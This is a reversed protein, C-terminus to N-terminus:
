RHFSLPDIRYRRLWRQVQSRAKGMARAVATINGAHERLLAVLEERRKVEPGGDLRAAAPVAAPAARVAEPLHELEVREGRSLVAAAALTKELERVNLPWSHRLLARAADPSFTPAATGIKSLLAAVLLSFDERRERLPPLTCAYGSLRALLDARFLGQSVLAELDRNTAAVVRLDVKLPRAAGVPLVEEEQLVRLLAAQAPLPLDGIEDLLLTGRDAGRVLGPQDDVAGSFAGRRHGFLESEVLNPAIAGCNVAQFIGPRGSLRHIAAALVEKGTGSEGRLLVPMRSRAVLQLRDLEAGLSHILTALGPAAPKLREGDLLDPGDAAALAERFLFFSHGLELVARDALPERRIRRGDIFTGNKSGQDEAVWADLVRQLRVHAASMRPDPIEIRLSHGSRELSLGTGRGITVADAGAFSFRAGSSLPRDCRLVLFLFPKGAERTGRRGGTRTITRSPDVVANHWRPGLIV